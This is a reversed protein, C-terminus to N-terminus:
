PPPPLQRNTAASASDRQNQMNKRSLLATGGARFTARTSRRQPFRWSPPRTRAIIPSTTGSASATTGDASAAIACPAAADVVGDPGWSAGGSNEESAHRLIPGALM